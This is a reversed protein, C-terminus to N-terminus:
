RPPKLKGRCVRASLRSAEHQAQPSTPAVGVSLDQFTGDFGAFDGDDESDEDFGNLAPGPGAASGGEAAM